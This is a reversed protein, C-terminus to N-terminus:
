PVGASAVVAAPDLGAMSLVALQEEDSVANFARLIRAILTARVPPRWVCERSVCLHAGEQVFIVGEAALRAHQPGSVRRTAPVVRHCPTDADTARSLISQITQLVHGNSQPSNVGLM